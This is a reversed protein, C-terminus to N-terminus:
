AEQLHQLPQMAWYIDKCAMTDGMASHAQYIDELPVKCFHSFAEALSPQKGGILKRANIMTCYYDSDRWQEAMDDGIYRKIAIRIMRNDFTTNHAVRLHGNWMELFLRLALEEPVGVALAHETTIGHIEVTEEPITWGDPRIILDISSLTKRTFPDVLLAALQVLHPQFPDDSPKKWDPVGTTETDFFLIPDNM